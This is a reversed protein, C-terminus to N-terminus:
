DSYFFFDILHISNAYMWNDVIEKPQGGEFAAKPNEQDIVHVFRPENISDVEKILKRTSSYHRRNLAVYATHNHSIALQRIAEAQFLNFGVPKEILSIWSYKFVEECVQMTALEPVAVIVIDPSCSNYLDSITACVNSFQYKSALNKAQIMTKSFIGVLEVDDIDSFAKIHEEAMYGAGIFCVNFKKM